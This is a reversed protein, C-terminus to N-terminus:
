DSAMALFILVTLVPNRLIFFFFFFFGHVKKSIPIIEKNTVSGELFKYPQLLNNSRQM